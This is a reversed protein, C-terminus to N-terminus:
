EEAEQKRELETIRNSLARGDLLTFREGELLFSKFEELEKISKSRWAEREQYESIETYLWAGLFVVLIVTNLTSGAKLKGLLPM